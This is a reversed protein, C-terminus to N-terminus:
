KKSLNINTKLSKFRKKNIVRTVWTPESSLCLNDLRYVFYYNESLDSDTVETVLVFDGKNLKLYVSNIEDIFVALFMKIQNNKM